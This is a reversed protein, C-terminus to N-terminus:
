LVSFLVALFGTPHVQAREFIVVGIIFRSQSCYARSHLSLRRSPSCACSKWHDVTYPSSWVWLDWMVKIHKQQQLVSPGPLPIFPLVFSSVHDGSMCLSRSPKCVCTELLGYSLPREVFLVCLHLWQKGNNFLQKIPFRGVHLPWAM